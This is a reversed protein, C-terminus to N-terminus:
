PNKSGKKEKTSNQAPTPYPPSTDADGASLPKTGSRLSEKLSLMTETIIKLEWHTCDSLIDNAMREFPARSETVSDCLLDDVTVSLANAINVITPLSLKTAGREIHSINSPEQNSLEALGQQTLKNAKRLRRIRLGIAHYDLEM